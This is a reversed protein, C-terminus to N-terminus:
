CAWAAVINRWSRGHVLEWAPESIVMFLFAHNRCRLSSIISHLGFRMLFHLLWGLSWKQHTRQFVRVPASVSILYSVSRNLLSSPQLPKRLLQCRQSASPTPCKHFTNIMVLFHVPGKSPMTLQWSVLATTTLLHSRFSSIPSWELQLGVQMVQTQNGESRLGLIRM